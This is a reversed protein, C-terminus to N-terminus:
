ASKELPRVTLQLGLAALIQSITSLKPDGDDSLARYLGARTIGAKRALQAMGESEAIDRLRRRFKAPDDAELLVEIYARVQDETVLYDSARFETVKEAM